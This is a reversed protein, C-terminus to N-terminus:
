IQAFPRTFDPEKSGAVAAECADLGHMSRIDYDFMDSVPSRKRVYGQSVFDSRDLVPRPCVLNVGQVFSCPERHAQGIGTIAHPRFNAGVERCTHVILCFM